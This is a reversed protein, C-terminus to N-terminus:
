SEPYCSGGNAVSVTTSGAFWTIQMAAWLLSLEEKRRTAIFTQGEACGVTNCRETPGSCSFGNFQRQDKAECYWRRDMREGM